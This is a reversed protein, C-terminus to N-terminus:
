LTAFCKKHVLRIEGSPMKVQTYEGEQSVVTGFSGASRISSAGQGVILELNYIELGTPINGIEMRNGAVLKAKEDTVVRDGVKMDKHALTYRREGDSYCILSIFATRYPDYEITEVKATIGMKDTGFFDILRYKQAHGGGQHRVTM